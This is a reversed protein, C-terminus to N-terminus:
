IGFSFLHPIELLMSCVLLLSNLNMYSLLEIPVITAYYYMVLGACVLYGSQQQWEVVTNTGRVSSRNGQISSFATVLKQKGKGTYNKWM